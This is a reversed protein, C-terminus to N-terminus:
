YNNLYSARRCTSAETGSERVPRQNVAPEAIKFTGIADRMTNECMRVPLFFTNQLGAYATKQGTRFKLM